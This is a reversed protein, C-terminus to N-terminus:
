IYLFPVREKCHNQVLNHVDKKVKFTSTQDDSFTIFLCKSYYSKVGNMKKEDRSFQEFHPPM